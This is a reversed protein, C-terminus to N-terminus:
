TSQLVKRDIIDSSCCASIDMYVRCRELCEQTLGWNSKFGVNTYKENGKENPRFVLSVNGGNLMLRHGLFQQGANRTYGPSVTSELIM